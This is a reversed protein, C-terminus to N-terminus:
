ASQFRPVLRLAPTILDRGVVRGDAISRLWNRYLAIAPQHWPEALNREAAKPFESLLSPDCGKLARSRFDDLAAAADDGFYFKPLPPYRDKERRLFRGVDRRYEGLLTRAEYEPHGQFFVFLSDHKKVFIDAGGDPLKTLIEYDNAVLAATPVENLRSHPVSWHMPLDGILPHDALKECTLVASCKESLRRRQIADDHLVTAHAALCSWITSRTQHRAWDVLRTFGNWYPEDEIREAKPECGTVILGDLIAEALDDTMAYNRDIRAQAAAGRGPHPLTFLRLRIWEDGAADALLRIFQQETTELAADPMNNVLGIEIWESRSRRSSPTARPGSVIQCGGQGRDVLLPM